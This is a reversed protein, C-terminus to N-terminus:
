HSDREASFVQYITCHVGSSNGLTPEVTLIYYKAISNKLSHFKKFAQFKLSKCPAQWSLFGSTALTGLAIVSYTKSPLHMLLGILTVLPEAELSCMCIPCLNDPVGKKQNVM